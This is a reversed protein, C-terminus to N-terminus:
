NYQFIILTLNLTTLPGIHYVTMKLQQQQKPQPQEVSLSPYIYERVSYQEPYQPPTSFSDIVTLSSIPPDGTQVQDQNRNMNM